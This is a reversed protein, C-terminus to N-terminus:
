SIKMFLGEPAPPPASPADAVGFNASLTGKKELLEKFTGKLAM